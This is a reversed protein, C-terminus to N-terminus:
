VLHVNSLWPNYAYWKLVMELSNCVCTQVNYDYEEESEEKHSHAENDNDIINKNTMIQYGPGDLDTNLWKLVEEVEYKFFGPMETIITVM